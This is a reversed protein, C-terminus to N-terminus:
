PITQVTVIDCWDGVPDNGDLYRARIQVNRPLNDPNKPVQLAAPSKVYRGVNSWALENDIQTEVYVGDSSGRVFKVQVVSGPMAVADIRPAANSELHPASSGGGNGGTTIGLLAGIEPTYAPAVRIRRILKDIREFIGTAVLAPPTLTISAPFVPTPDGIGGETITKRYSRIADTYAGVSVDTTALFQMVSNDDALSTQEAATLGLSTGTPGQLQNAINDFWAAREQLSGPFYNSNPLVM